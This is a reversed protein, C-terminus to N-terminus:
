KSKIKQLQTTLNEILKDYGGLQECCHIALKITEVNNREIALSEECAELAEDFMQLDRFNMAINDWAEFLKPHIKLCQKYLAIGEELDSCNLAQDFLSSYKDYVEDFTEVKNNILLFRTYDTLELYTLFGRLESEQVSQQGYLIFESSSTEDEEQFSMVSNLPSHMILLKCHKSLYESQADTWPQKRIKDLMQEMHKTSHDNEDRIQSNIRTCVAQYITQPNAELLTTWGEPPEIKSTRLSVHYCYHDDGLSDIELIKTILFSHIHDHNSSTERKIIVDGKQFLHSM